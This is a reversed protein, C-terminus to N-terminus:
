NVMHNQGCAIAIIEIDHLPTIQGDRSKDVFVLVRQPRTKFDFGIKSSSVFYKGDSNHGPYFLPNHFLLVYM